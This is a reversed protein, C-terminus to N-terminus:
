KQHSKVSDKVERIVTQIEEETMSPVLYGDFGKALYEEGIEGVKDSPVFLVVDVQEVFVKDWYEDTAQPHPFNISGIIMMVLEQTALEERIEEITKVGTRAEEAKREEETGYYEEYIRNIEETSLTKYHNILAEAEFGKPVNKLFDGTLHELNQMDVDLVQLMKHYDNM